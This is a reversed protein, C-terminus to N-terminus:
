SPTSSDHGTRLMLATKVTGYAQYLDYAGPGSRSRFDSSSPSSWDFAQHWASNESVIIPGPGDDFQDATIDVILGNRHLWAHSTWSGDEHCGRTGCIHEFGVVGHDALLTGLLLSTDSCAGCPFENLGIPLSPALAELVARVDYALREILARDSM